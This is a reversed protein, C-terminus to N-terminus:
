ADVWVKWCKCHRSVSFVIPAFTFLGDSRAVTEAITPFWAVKTSTNSTHWFDLTRPLSQSLFILFLSNSKGDSQSMTEATSSEWSYTGVRGCSVTFDRESATAVNPPTSYSSGSSGKPASLCLFVEERICM